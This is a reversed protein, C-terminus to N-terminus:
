GRTQFFLRAQLNEDAQPFHADLRELDGGFTARELRRVDPWNVEVLNDAPDRFYMQVAGDSLEYLKGFRGEEFTDLEKLRLYTGEFDDVEIALHQYTRGPQEAVEFLHLQQTGLRFWKVPFGFNPAPVEELGLVDRYFRASVEVDVAPISVHNLATAKMVTGKAFGSPIITTAEHSAM